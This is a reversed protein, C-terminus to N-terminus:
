VGGDPAREAPVNRAKLRAVLAKLDGLNVLDPDTVSALPLAAMAQCAQKPPLTTLPNAPLASSCGSLYLWCAFVICALFCVSLTGATKTSSTM